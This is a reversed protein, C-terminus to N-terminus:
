EPTTLNAKMKQLVQVFQRREEPTVDAFARQL